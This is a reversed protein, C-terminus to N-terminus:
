RILLTTGKLFVKEGTDHHTYSLFWAYVGTDQLLGNIRGDWKKTWDRTFFVLQGFRNFVKFELQDAKLANLPYLYDNKGDGNPTFASPVAIYCNSLAKVIHIATDSCNLTTNAAILTITYLVERGADPYFYGVPTKTTINVGNGLSWKWSNISGSSNNEFHVTDGPCIISPVDFAATLQGGSLINKSVTDSCKGNSVILQVSHQGPAPFLYVPNQSNGSSGNGFNWRWNNTNGNGNHFFSVPSEACSPPINYTFSASLPDNMTFSVSSGAPTQVGCEDLITNGDSGTALRVQYTGGTLIPSSLNLRIISSMGSPGCTGQVFNTSVTQPGTIIFDSGNAAVSNCRMPKRFIFELYKPSCGPPFISDFPVSQMPNISFSVAEGVPITRNCVDLLTNGDAGNGIIITYNGALLPQSLSLIVSDTGFTPNCFGPTAAVVTTGSSLTFEAGGADISNCQIRKNLKVIVETANCSARANLLHPEIADTISATGGTFILDYSGASGSENSVMLLYTRGQVLDPMKSFLPQPGSCVTLSTGDSSAGTEGLEGSWNCAVFLAPNTFIDNPNSGTIDFLQWNYNASLDQPTILFGLTGPGFCAM